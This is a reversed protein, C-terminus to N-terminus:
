KTFGEKVWTLARRVGLIVLISIPLSSATAFLAIAISEGDLRYANTLVVIPAIVALVSGSLLSIRRWGIVDERLYLSAASLLLFVTASIALWLGIAFQLPWREISALGGTLFTSAITSVAFRWWIKHIFKSYWRLKPGDTGAIRTYLHYLGFSALILFILLGIWNPTNVALAKSFGAVLVIATLQVAILGVNPKTKTKTKRRESEEDFYRDLLKRNINRQALVADLAIVAEAELTDVRANIAALEEDKLRLYASEFKALKAADMNPASKSTRM